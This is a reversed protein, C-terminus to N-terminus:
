AIVYAGEPLPADITCVIGTPEFEVKARGSLELALGQELLRTGFGRRTPPSVPPGGSEEWSMTFREANAKWTIAVTGREASLSGYKLANTSLEHVAMALSVATKPPVRFLPGSISVREPEISLAELGARIVVEVSAPNWNKRTLVDHATALAMLRQEFSRRVEAPVSAARLTQWALSQVVALTNKVRHNLEDILLKQENIDNALVYFGDVEGDSTFRPIYHVHVARTTGDHAEATSDYAQAHGAMVEKLNESREAFAADGLLERISKGVIEERELGFWNEYARNVFRYRFDRDVFAILAPLADALMRLQQANKQAELDRRREASLDTVFVLLKDPHGAVRSAGVRVPVRSGDHRVYEKEFPVIEEGALIAEVGAVDLQRHEPATMALWAERVGVIEERRRGLIELLRDNVEVVTESPLHAVALGVLNSEFVSRFFADDLRHPVETTDAVRGARM